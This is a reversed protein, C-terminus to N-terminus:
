ECGGGSDDIRQLLAVLEKQETGSLRGMASREARAMPEDLRALLDLGKPTIECFVQRRDETCRRRRALGTRELRDILRTVGPAQEIMREAVTLTPCGDPGAGRLIRLVNYQQATIGEAEIVAALRRRVSDVTRLLTVVADQTAHRVPLRASSSAASSTGTGRM